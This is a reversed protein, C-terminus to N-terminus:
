SATAYPDPIGLERLAVRELQEMKEADGEEEHDFGLLHLYGHIILHAMHDVLPKSALAAERTVTEASLIVDGLLQASERSLGPKRGGSGAPRPAALQPFSLVNTPSDKGRWKKNLERMAADNTFVISLESAEGSVGQSASVSRPLPEDAEALAKAAAKLASGAITRLKRRDPWEGDDVSIQVSPAPPLM